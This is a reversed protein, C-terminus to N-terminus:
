SSRQYHAASGVTITANDIDIILLGVPRCEALSSAEVERRVQRQVSKAIVEDKSLCKLALIFPNSPSRLRALYVRGFHGTNDTSRGHYRRKSSTAHASSLRSTPRSLSQPSLFFRLSGGKGLPRGIDFDKLSWETSSGTRNTQSSYTHDDHSSGGILSSIWDQGIWTEQQQRPLNARSTANSDEM